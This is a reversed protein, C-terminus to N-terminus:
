FNFWALVYATNNDRANRGHGDIDSSVGNFKSYITYAVSLKVNHWRLYDFEAMYGNSDPKDSPGDNLNNYYIADASGNTNFYGMTFGVGQKLFLEASVKFSNLTNSLNSSGATEYTANLKQKEGLYVPHIALSGAPFGLEYSVDFGLDAYNDTKGDVGSPYLRTNMGM